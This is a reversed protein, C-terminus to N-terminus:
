TTERAKDQDAAADAGGIAEALMGSASLYAVSGFTLLLPVAFATVLKYTVWTQESFEYAVYINAVGALAMAAAWAWSLNRWAREPLKLVKGLARQVHDGRGVFRSGGIAVAMAWYVITPKWQIFLANRFVLTLAGFVLAVWFVAWMQGNIRWSKLKFFGVQLVAAVMLAATAVYIDAALYAAFFIAVPLFDILQKMAFPATPLGGIKVANLLADRRKGRKEM